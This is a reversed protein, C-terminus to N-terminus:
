PLEPSKMAGAMSYDILELSTPKGQFAGEMKVMTTIPVSPHHWSTTESEFGLVKEKQHIKIAGQFRGAPVVIDERPAGEFDPMKVGEVIGQSIKGLMDAQKGDFSIVPMGPAKVKASLLKISEPDRNDNVELLIQTITDGARTPNVVEIKWAGREKGVVSYSFGTSEGKRRYRVMQGVRIPLASFKGTFAVANNNASKQPAPAAAGSPAQPTAASSASKVGEDGTAGQVKEKLKDVVKCSLLSVLLFGCAVGRGIRM